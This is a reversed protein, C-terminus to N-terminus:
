FCCSFLMFCCFSFNRFSMICDSLRNTEPNSTFCV